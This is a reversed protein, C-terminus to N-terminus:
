HLRAPAAARIGPLLAGHADPRRTGARRGASREGGPAERGWVAASDRAARLARCSEAAFLIQGDVVVAQFVSLKMFVNREENSLIHWSHELVARVGRHREPIHQVPQSLLDLNHEIQRAIEACPMARVWAAALEIALPMGEVLRCIQVVATKENALSFRAHLRRATQQFLRIASYNEVREVEESEPFELGEIELIWEWQLHLRERSTVLIKVGPAIMLIEELLPAGELLHEFNDILLLLSKERLYNLLQSKPSEQGYFAFKLADALRSVLFEISSLSALPAFYVGDRFPELHTAAAQLALRSKGIGGPGILTLLRCAPDGLRDAIEALEKDRGVFPTPQAPLNHPPQRL